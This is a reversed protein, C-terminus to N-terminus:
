RGRHQGEVREAQRAALDFDVAITRIAVRVQEGVLRIPHAGRGEGQQSTRRRQEVFDELAVRHERFSRAALAPQDAVAVELVEAGEPRPSEGRTFLMRGPAVGDHEVEVVEVVGEDPGPAEVDQPERDAEDEGSALQAGVATRGEIEGFGEQAGVGVAGKVLLAADGSRAGHRAEDVLHARPGPGLQQVRAGADDAALPAEHTARANAL